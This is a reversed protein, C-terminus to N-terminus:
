ADGEGGKRKSSLGIRGKGLYAEIVNQDCRVANPPGECIKIGHDIVTIAHCLNMILKMDHEIVVITYGDVNLKRIFAILDETEVPNMGAAPEDLLLIEPSTALARAIELRRQTGYALNAALNDALHAMDVRGLLEMGKERAFEEDRRYRSTHLFADLFNTGTRSHFGIKVNDLVTMQKFLKINQFTRGMGLRCVKEPPLNTVKKGLFFVDGSTAPYTGTLVNFLTTKGAGNPGIIGHIIGKEVSFSVKEVAKLGGFYKCVERVDLIASM